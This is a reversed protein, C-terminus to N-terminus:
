GYTLWPLLLGFFQKKEGIGFGWSGTM